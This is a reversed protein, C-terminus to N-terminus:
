SPALPPNEATDDTARTPFSFIATDGTVQKVIDAIKQSVQKVRDLVREGCELAYLDPHPGAGHPDHQLAM